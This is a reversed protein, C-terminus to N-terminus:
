KDYEGESPDCNAISEPSLAASVAALYAEGKLSPDIEGIKIRKIGSM